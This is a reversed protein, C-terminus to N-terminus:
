QGSKHYKTKWYFKHLLLMVIVSTLVFTTIVICAIEYGDESLNQIRQKDKRFDLMHGFTLM